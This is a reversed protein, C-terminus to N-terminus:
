RKLHCATFLDLHVTLFIRIVYNHDSVKFCQEATPNIYLSTGRVPMKYLEIQVGSQIGIIIYISLTANHSAVHQM